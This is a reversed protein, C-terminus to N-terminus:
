KNLFFNYATFSVHCLHTLLLEGAGCFFVVGGGFIILRKRKGIKINLDHSDHFLKSCINKSKLHHYEHYGAM